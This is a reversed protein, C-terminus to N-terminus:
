SCIPVSFVAFGYSLTSCHQQGPVRADGQSARPCALNYSKGLPGERFPSLRNSPGGPRVASLTRNDQSRVGVTTDAMPPLFCSM